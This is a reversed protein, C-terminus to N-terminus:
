FGSATRTIGCFQAGWARAWTVATMSAPLPIAATEELLGMLRGQTATAAQTSARNTTGSVTWALYYTGPQLVVDATVYQIASAGSQATSGTSFLQVGSGSFIGMDVNSSATSGNMWFVRKVPYAFPLTIPIYEVINTTWTQSAPATSGLLAHQEFGVAFRSITSIFLPTQTVPYPFDGM